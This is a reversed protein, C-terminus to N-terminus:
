PQPHTRQGWLGNASTFPSPGLETSPGKNVLSAMAVFDKLTQTGRLDAAARTPFLLLPAKV